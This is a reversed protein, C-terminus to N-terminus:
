GKAIFNAKAKTIVNILRLFFSYQFVSLPVIPYVLAADNVFYFKTEHNRFNQFLREMLM